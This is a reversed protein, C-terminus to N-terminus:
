QDAALRASRPVDIRPLGARRLRMAARDRHALFVRHKGRTRRLDAASGTARDLASYFQSSMERDLAALRNSGCVL